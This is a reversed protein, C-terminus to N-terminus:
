KLFHNKDAGMTLKIFDLLLNYKANIEKNNKLNIKFDGPKYKKGYAGDDEFYLINDFNKGNRLLKNESSGSNYRLAFIYKCKPFISKIESAINSYTVIGHTNVGDYKLEIIISPVILDKKNNKDMNHINISNIGHLDEINMIESKNYIVIDQDAFGLQLEFKDNKNSLAM